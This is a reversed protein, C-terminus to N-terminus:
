ELLELRHTSHGWYAPIFTCDGWLSDVVGLLSIGQGKVPGLVKQSPGFLSPTLWNKSGAQFNSEM